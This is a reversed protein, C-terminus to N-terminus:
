NMAPFLPPEPMKSTSHIVSASHFGGIAEDLIRCIEAQSIIGCHHFDESQQLLDAIHQVCLGAGIMQDQNKYDPRQM